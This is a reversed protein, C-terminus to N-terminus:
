ASPQPQQPLVVGPGSAIAHPQFARQRAAPLLLTAFISSGQRFSWSVSLEPQLRLLM